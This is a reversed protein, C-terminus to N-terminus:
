SCKWSSINDLHSIFASFLEVKLLNWLPLFPSLGTPDLALRGGRALYFLIVIQLYCMWM